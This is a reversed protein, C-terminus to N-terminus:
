IQLLEIGVGAMVQVPVRSSWGCYLQVLVVFVKEAATFHGEPIRSISKWMWPVYPVQVLDTGTNTIFQLGM